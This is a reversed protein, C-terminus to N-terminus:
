VCMLGVIISISGLGFEEHSENSGMFIWGLLCLTHRGLETFIGRFGKNVPMKSNFFSYNNVNAEMKGCFCGIEGTPSTLGSNEGIYKDRDVFSLTSTIRV